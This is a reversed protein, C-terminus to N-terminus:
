EGDRAGDAGLGELEELDVEGGVNAPAAERGCQEAEGIIVGPRPTSSPEHQPGVRPEGGAVAEVLSMAEM